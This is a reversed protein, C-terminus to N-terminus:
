MCVGMQCDYPLDLGRDKAAELITQGEDVNLVETSGSLTKLEVKHAQCVSAQRQRKAPPPLCLRSPPSAHFLTQPRTHASCGIKHAQLHNMPTTQKGSIDFHGPFLSSGDSNLVLWPQLSRIM